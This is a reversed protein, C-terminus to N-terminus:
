LGRRSGSAGERTNESDTLDSDNNLEDVLEMFSEPDDPAVIELPQGIQSLKATLVLIIQYPKAQKDGALSSLQSDEISLDLRFKRINYDEDLWYEVHGETKTGEDDGAATTEDQQTSAGADPAIDGGEPFQERKKEECQEREERSRASDEAEDEPDLAARVHKTKVGDIEEDPLFEYDRLTDGFVETTSMSDNDNALDDLMCSAEYEGREALDDSTLRFWTGAFKLFLTDKIFAGEM